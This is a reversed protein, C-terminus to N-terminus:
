AGLRRLCQRARRELGADGGRRAHEVAARAYDRATPLDDRTLFSLGLAAEGMVAEAPRAYLGRAGDLIALVATYEARALARRGRSRATRAARLRAHATALTTPDLAATPAAALSGGTLGAVDGAGAPAVPANKVQEYTTQLDRYGVDIADIPPAGAGNVVADLTVLGLPEAVDFPEATSPATGGENSAAFVLAGETLLPRNGTFFNGVVNGRAGDRLQTGSEVYGRVVNGRIDALTGDNVLGGDISPNRRLNKDWLNAHASIRTVGYKVLSGGGCWGKSCPGGNGALYNWSLTVDSVIAGDHGTVDIGGDGSNTISCHDVILRAISAGRNAAIQIGDNVANRIRLGRVIVNTSAIELVGGGGGSLLDGWLTIGPAPATLGDITTNAPVALEAHLVIDGAVAFVVRGGGRRGVTELVSRLSGIGSDALATVTFLPWGEGGSTEAGFGTYAGHLARVSEDGAGGPVWVDVVHNPDGAPDAAVPHALILLVGLALVLRAATPSPREM